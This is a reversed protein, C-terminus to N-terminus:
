RQSDCIKDGNVDAGIYFDNAGDADADIKAYITSFAKISTALMKM